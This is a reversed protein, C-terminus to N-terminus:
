NDYMTFHMHRILVNRTALADDDNAGGEDSQGNEAYNDMEEIIETIDELEAGDNVDILFNHPVFIAM